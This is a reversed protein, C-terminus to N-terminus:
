QLPPPSCNTSIRTNSDRITGDVEFAVVAGATTDSVVFPGIQGAPISTAILSLNSGGTDSTLFASPLFVPGTTAFLSQVM